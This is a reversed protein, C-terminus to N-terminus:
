RRKCKGDPVSKSLSSHFGNVLAIFFEHADQQKYGALNVAHQWWSYLFQAPSYPSHDGSFAASYIKHMECGLCSRLNKNKCSNHTHGGNLFFNKLPGVHILAQLICNMYCTNGLNNLGRLGWPFLSSGYAESECQAAHDALHYGNKMRRNNSRTIRKNTALETQMGNILLKPTCKLALSQSHIVVRDFDADYVQDACICCFLEARHLDVALSHDPYLRAHVLAHPLDTSLSSSVTFSGLCCVNACVLCAYLRGRTVGCMVCKIAGKAGEIKIAANQLEKFAKPGGRKSKFDVLHECPTRSLATEGEGEVAGRKRSAM